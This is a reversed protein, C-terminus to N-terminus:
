PDRNSAPVTARSGARGTYSTGPVRHGGSRGRGASAVRPRRGSRPGARNRLRPDAGRVRPAAAVGRARDARSSRRQGARAPLRQCASAPAPPRARETAPSPKRPTSEQTTGLIRFWRVCTSVDSTVPAQARSAGLPRLVVRSVTRVLCPGDGCVMADLCGPVRDTRDKEPGASARTFTLSLEAHNSRDLIPTSPVGGAAAPVAM